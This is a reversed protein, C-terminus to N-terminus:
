RGAESSRVDRSRRQSRNESCGFVQNEYRSEREGERREGGGEPLLFPTNNRQYLYINFGPSSLPSTYMHAKKYVTSHSFVKDGSALHM